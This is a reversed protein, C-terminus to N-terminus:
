FEFHTKDWAIMPKGGLKIWYDHWYEWGKKPDTLSKGDETLFYIDAALGIQHKSIAKYGDLKSKGERYLRNQEEASRKVYDVIPLEGELFMAALLKSLAKTFETRKM